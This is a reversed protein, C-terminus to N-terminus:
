LGTGLRVLRSMFPLLAWSWKRESQGHEQLLEWHLLRDFLRGLHQVAWLRHFQSLSPMPYRRQPILPHSTHSFERAM